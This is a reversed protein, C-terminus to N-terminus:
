ERDPPRRSRWGALCAGVLGAAVVLLFVGLVQSQGHTSPGRESGTSVSGPADLLAGLGLITFMLVLMGLPILGAWRRLRDPGRSELWTAFVLAPFFLGGVGLGFLMWGPNDGDGVRHLVAAVIMLGLLGVIAGAVRL